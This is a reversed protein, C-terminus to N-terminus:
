ACNRNLFVWGHDGMDRNMSEEEVWPTDCVLCFGTSLNIEANACVFATENVCREGCSTVTQNQHIRKNCGSIGLNNFLTFTDNFGDSSCAKVCATGGSDSALSDGAACACVGDVCSAGMVTCDSDMACTDGNNGHRCLVHTEVYIDYTYNTLLLNGLLVHFGICINDRRNYQFSSCSPDQVCLLFCAVRERVDEIQWLRWRPFSVGNLSDVAKSTCKNCTEATVISSCFFLICSIINKMSPCM